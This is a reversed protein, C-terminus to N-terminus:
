SNEVRCKALYKDLDAQDFKVLKKEGILYASLKGDAVLKRISKSSIGLYEAAVKSSLLRPRRPPATTAPSPTFRAPQSAPVPPYKSM